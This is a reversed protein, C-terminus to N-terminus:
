TLSVSTSTSVLSLVSVHHDRVSSQPSVLMKRKEGTLIIKPLMKRERKEGYLGPFPKTCSPLHRLLCQEYSVYKQVLILLISAIHSEFYWTVAAINRFIVLCTPNTHKSQTNRPLSALSARLPLASTGTCHSAMATFVAVTTCCFAVSPSLM